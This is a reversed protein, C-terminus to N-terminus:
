ITLIHEVIRFCAFLVDFVITSVVPVGLEWMEGRKCVMGLLSVFVM